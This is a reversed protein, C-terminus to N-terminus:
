PACEGVAALVGRELLSRVTESGTFYQTGGGDQNFAPGVEGQAVPLDQCVEYVHYGKTLSDPPLSREAFPTDRPSLYRGWPGGFRDVQTGPRLTTPQETGPVAGNDGPYRWTGDPNTNAKVFAEPSQGGYPDYGEFMGATEPNAQFQGLASSIEGATSDGVVAGAASAGTGSMAAGEGATGTVDAAVATGDAMELADTAPDLGLQAVNAITLGVGAVGLGVGVLLSTHHTAFDWVAGAGTAVGHSVTAWASSLAGGVPDAVDHELWGLVGGGGNHAPEWWPRGTYGQARWGLTALSVLPGTLVQAGSGGNTHASGAMSAVSQFGGAATLAAATALAEAEAAMSLAAARQSAYLGEVAQLHAQAQSSTNAAQDAQAQAQTAQAKASSHPAAAAQSAQSAVLQAGQAHVAAEAAQGQASIMAQATANAEESAAQARRALAQAERLQASYLSFVVAAHEAAGRARSFSASLAQTDLRYSQAGQGQWNVTGVQSGLRSAMSGLASATAACTRGCAALAEPDGPPVPVPPLYPSGVEQGQPGVLM